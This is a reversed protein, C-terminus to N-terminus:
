HKFTGGATAKGGTISGGGGGSGLTLMYANTEADNVLIFADISPFYRFRGYTGTTEVVNAANRSDPPGGSFTQTTCTGVAPDFIYVTNGFNPWGVIKDRLSDYAVGPNPAASLGDCSSATVTTSAYSGGASIDIYSIRPTGLSTTQNGIGPGNNPGFIYIRHRVPDVVWTGNTSILASTTLTQYTNTADSYSWLTAGATSAYLATETFVLQRSPDYVANTWPGQGPSPNGTAIDRPKQSGSGLTVPDRLLWSLGPMDFTWTDGLHSGNGCTLSGGQVYMKDRDAIYALGDYTHRSNPTVGDPMDAYCTANAVGRDPNTADKIRCIAPASGSTCAVGAPTTGPPYIAYVENGSYNGHGGGFLIMRNRSTDAIGGSWAEIVYRCHGSTGSSPCLGSSSLTTNTLETWGQGYLAGIFLFLSLKRM